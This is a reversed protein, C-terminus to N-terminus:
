RHQQRGLPGSFQTRGPDSNGATSGSRDLPGALYGCANLNSNINMFTGTSGHQIPKVICATGRMSAMLPAAAEVMRDYEARPMLYSM